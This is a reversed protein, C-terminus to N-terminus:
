ELPSAIFQCNTWPTGPRRMIAAPPSAVLSMVRVSVPVRCGIRVGVTVRFRFRFGVGLM